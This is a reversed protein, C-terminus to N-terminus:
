LRGTLTDCNEVRPTVAVYTLNGSEHTSNIGLKVNMKYVLTGASLLCTMQDSAKVGVDACFLGVYDRNHNACIINPTLKVLRIVRGLM